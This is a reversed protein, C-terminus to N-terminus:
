VGMIGKLEAASVVHCYIMNIIDLEREHLEETGAACGDEVVVVDFRDNM